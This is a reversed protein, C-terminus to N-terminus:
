EQSNMWKCKVVLIFVRTDLPENEAFHGPGELWCFGVFHWLNLIRTNVEYM